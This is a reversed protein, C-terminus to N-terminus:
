QRPARSRAQEAERVETIVAHGAHFLESLADKDDGLRQEVASYSLTGKASLLYFTVKGPGPLPTSSALPMRAQFQSAAQLMAKSAQRVAQHEGAGIIGGGSSFYLSTSGDALVVPSYVAGDELGTEMLIGWPEEVFTAPSLGLDAPKVSLARARLEAMVAAPAPKQPQASAGIGIATLLFAFLRQFM